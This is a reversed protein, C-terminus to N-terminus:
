YEDAPSHYPPGSIATANSRGTQPDVVYVFMFTPKKDKIRKLGVHITQKLRALARRSQATTIESKRPKM